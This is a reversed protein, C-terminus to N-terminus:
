NGAITPRLAQKVARMEPWGGFDSIRSSKDNSMPCFVSSVAGFVKKAGDRM